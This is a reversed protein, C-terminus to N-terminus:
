PWPKVEAQSSLRPGTGNLRRLRAAVRHLRAVADAHRCWARWGGARPPTMALIQREIAEARQAARRAKTTAKPMAPLIFQPRRMHQSRGTRVYKGPLPPPISGGGQRGRLIARPGPRGAAVTAIGQEVMSRSALTVNTPPAQVSPPIISLPPLELKAGDDIAAFKGPVHKLATINFTIGEGETVALVKFTQLALEASETAWVGQPQPESSWPASVTVQNGSIAAITRAQSRGTPLMVVLSDGAAMGEPALDLVVTQGSASHIRGGIRRGARKADAVQIIQGPEAVVGDLGVAFSVTETELNESLLIHNGIRQAQSRSTCGFATVETQQIGYRAVGERYIVPEVKQRGFDSQDSWSVLAVTHRAKRGSGEYSFRSDIVNAGTYTYVPDMPMDASALVQGMAYYSIGRFVSALDQLLKYADQATQLYVNCTFRPEQGGLGDSVLQDCYQAIQYLRWRDVMEPAVIGGLGFRDNTVMDYFVWAPNDSWASKFTGDWIGVYARTEPDYNTPVRIIRWYCDYGRTPISQFQSADVEIAVLASNPYRLKADIIETLSLINLTDAITASNANPTLRRFRIQWVSGAPLDIRRSREYQTTTKGTITDTLLTTYAGGDTAVDVAYTISYGVTDGNDTKTRQLAPVALRVRVASLESGSVTRVIPTDSRLEVGVSIENEVSPFGAVYEQDQTGVRTQVVVNQFNMSGDSGQLPAGDLAISQLGNALGRIEGESILDIIKAYAISHLSDPSEVPTRASSSGKGGAGRFEPGASM